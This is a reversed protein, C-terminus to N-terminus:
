PSGQKATAPASEERLSAYLEEFELANEQITKVATATRNLLSLLEPEAVLRLVARRLDGADGPRFTLGNEGNRVLEKMGGHASTVVPIGAM